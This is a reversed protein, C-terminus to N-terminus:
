RDAAACQTAGPPSDSHGISVTKFVTSCTVMGTEHTRIGRGGRMEIM